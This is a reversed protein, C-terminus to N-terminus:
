LSHGKYRSTHDAVAACLAALRAARKRAHPPLSRGHLIRTCNTVFDLYYQAQLQKTKLLPILSPMLEAGTEYNWSCKHSDKYHNESPTTKFSGNFTDAIWRITEADTGAVNFHAAWSGGLHASNGRSRNIGISGEGDVFGALYALDVISWAM